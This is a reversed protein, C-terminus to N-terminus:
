ALKDLEAVSDFAFLRVGKQYAIAIDSQKKITNGFSIHEPKTGATLAMDIEAVSATDFRSGLEVLLSLIESAPNAKVAYYIQADPLARRMDNYNQEVVDLDVVLCPTAPRREALFQAIKQTM